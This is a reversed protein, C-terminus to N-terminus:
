TKSGNLIVQKATSQHCIEALSEEVEGTESGETEQPVAPSGQIPRHNERRKAAALERKRQTSAQMELMEALHRQIQTLRPLLGATVTEPLPSHLYGARLNRDHQLMAREILIQTRIALYAVLELGHNLVEDAFATADQSARDRVMARLQRLPDAPYVDGGSDILADVFGWLDGAQHANQLKFISPLEDDVATTRKSAL